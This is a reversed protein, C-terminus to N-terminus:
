LSSADVISEDKSKVDFIVALQNKILKRREEFFSDFDAISLSIGEPRYDFDNGESVWKELPTKNKEENEKGELLQLNPLLNRQKQWRAIIEKDSIVDKIYKNEFLAYPHVHDQHFVHKDVKLNPYLLMLLVLTNVGKEYKNLWYELDEDRVIFDRGGTLVVDKFLEMSFSTKSCNLDKLAVRTGALASNSAVGFLGKAFSISLFKRAEIKSAKNDFKGGKFIYYALPMTANYSILYESNIGIELLLESMSVFAASIKKWDRRIGEVVKTNLNEIKLNTDADELVLCLRMLYDRSFDFNNRNVDELVKEISDKGDKWGDILTSFLLDTKSLKRGTSNVRVFISLADDYNDKTICYYHVLGRNTDDTLRSFLNSLDNICSEDINLANLGRICQIATEYQVLQKVLYYHGESAESKSLFVFRKNPYEAEDDTISYYDLNYYLERTVYSKERNQKWKPLTTYEGFLAINLSTLRQQGDLVIYYDGDDQFLSPAKENKTVDSRYKKCKRIFFYLNPQEVNLVTKNTKWFICSGIPYDDVISEFLNEIEYPEWCYERQIDPLVMHQNKILRLAEFASMDEYKNNSAM